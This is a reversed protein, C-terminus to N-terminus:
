IPDIGYADHSFMNPTGFALISMSSVTNYLKKHTIGLRIFKIHRRKPVNQEMKMPPTLLVSVGGVFISCVTSRFTPVYIEYASSDVLFFSYLM